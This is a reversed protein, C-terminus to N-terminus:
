LYFSVSINQEPAIDQLSRWFTQKVTGQTLTQSNSFFIEDLSKHQRWLAFNNSWIEAELFYFITSTWWAIVKTIQRPSLWQNLEVKNKKQDTM